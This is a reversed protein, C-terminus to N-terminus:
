GIRDGLIMKNIEDRMSLLTDASRPYHTFTIQGHKELINLVAEKGSIGELQQAARIDQMAQEMLLLRISRIPKGDKGPYVLFADGSQFGHDADTVLYPNLDQILSKQSYWHNYGWHLFGEIGYKYMQFGIIRTREGSMNMFRNSLGDKYQGCCYYAWLNPTDNDIFTHIHDTSAVPHSVYGKRYFEYDSLADLIPYPFNEKKVTGSAYKYSDINTLNPEDSIHFYVSDTLKNKKIFSDLETLFSDLFTSYESGPKVDWGFIQKYKGDVTAMIKPTYAAGWQAYLHSLEFYKIGRDLCLKVFWELLTFDFEYINDSNLTVGVLQITPRDGGVNMELAPSFIPTLIMNIGSDAYQEVYNEIIKKHEDSFIPVNYYTALCDMYFWETRILQQPQLEVPLVELTFKESGYVEQDKEFRITIEHKGPTIGATDVYVWISRYQGPLLNVTEFPMLTDPFLGPATRLLYEDHDAYNPLECPVLGVSYINIHSSIDSVVNVDVHKIHENGRYVVQYSIRENKLASVSSYPDTVPKEDPFVKVLPNLTMTNVKSM